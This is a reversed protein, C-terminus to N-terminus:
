EWNDNEEFAKRVQQNENDCKKNKRNKSSSSPNKIKAQKGVDANEDDTIQMKSMDVNKSYDVDDDNKTVDQKYCFEEVYKDNTNCDNECTFVAIIGWDLEYNKLENLMQPMIQFEFSRRGNCLSCKPIDNSSIGGSSIWLVKGHRDYRIVQTPYEDITNKFKGFIKDGKTEEIDQLDKETIDNMNGANGNKMLEEYERLRRKEAERESENSNEAYKPEEQEIDIEYEPFLTDNGDNDNSINEKGCTRKHNKWDCKQHLQGCYNVKKCRGCLMPAKCGCVNCTSFLPKIEDLKVSEDPPTDSYFKNKLPLQCRLM